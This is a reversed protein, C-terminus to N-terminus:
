RPRLRPWMRSSPMSHKTRRVIAIGRSLSAGPRSLGTSISSRRGATARTSPWVRCSRSASGQRLSVRFSRTTTRDCSLTRSSGPQAFATWRPLSQCPRIGVSSRYSRSRVFPSVPSHPATAAQRPSSGWPDDLVVTARFPGDTLPLVAFALDLTGRELSSLLDFDGLTEAVEIEVDPFQHRFRRMVEPLLRRQISEFAGVRLAGLTGRAFADIDAKAAGLRAEIAAMHGLLSRGAQTLGLAKRGHERAIVRTGVIRELGAIQQSIASPTYGLRSAAGKFSGTEAIAQLAILHRLELGIWQDTM